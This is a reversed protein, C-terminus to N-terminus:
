ARKMEEFANDRIHFPRDIRKAYSDLQDVIIGAETHALVVISM